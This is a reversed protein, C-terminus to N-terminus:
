CLGKCLSATKVGAHIAVHCSSEFLPVGECHMAHFLINVSLGGPNGYWTHIGEGAVLPQKCHRLVCSRDVPLTDYTIRFSRRRTGVLQGTALIVRINYLAHLRGLGFCAHHAELSNKVHLWCKLTCITLGAGM